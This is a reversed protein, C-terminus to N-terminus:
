KSSKVLFSLCIDSRDGTSKSQSCISDDGQDLEILHIIINLSSRLSNEVERSGLHPLLHLRNSRIGGLVGNRRLFSTFVGM